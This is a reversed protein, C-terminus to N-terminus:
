GASGDHRLHALDPRIKLNNVNQNVVIITNTLDNQNRSLGGCAACEEMLSLIIM